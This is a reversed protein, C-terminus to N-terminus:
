DLDGTNFIPSWRYSLKYIKAVVLIQTERVGPVLQIQQTVLQTLHPLNRCYVEVLLDYQGLTMVLYSVEPLESISRAVQEIKGPEASIGIMAPANFDLAFPDVISVTHVVGEEVLNRYRSRITTESVGAIKAIQTFPTRGDEQLAQLILRDVEDM